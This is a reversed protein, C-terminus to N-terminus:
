SKALVSKESGFKTFVNFSSQDSNEGERGRARSSIESSSPTEEDIVHGGRPGASGAVQRPLAVTGSGLETSARSFHPGSTATEPVLPFEPFFGPRQSVLPRGESALSGGGLPWKGAALAALAGPPPRPITVSFDRPQGCM